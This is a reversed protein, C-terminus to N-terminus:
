LNQPNVWNGIRPGEEAHNPIKAEIEVKPALVEEDEFDEKSKAEDVLESLEWM